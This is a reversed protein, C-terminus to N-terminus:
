KVDITYEETGTQGPLETGLCDVGLTFTFTGRARPIGQVSVTSTDQDKMLFLGPPLSGQDIEANNLPTVNKEVQIRAQYPKALQAQPLNQPVFELAPRPALWEICCCSSILLYPIVALLIVARRPVM